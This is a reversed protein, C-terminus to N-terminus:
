DIRKQWVKRVFILYVITPFPAQILGLIGWLWYNHQNKKANIFLFLSQSLLIIVVFMILIPTPEENM